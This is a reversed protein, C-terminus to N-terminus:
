FKWLCNRNNFALFEPLYLIGWAGQFWFIDWGWNLGLLQPRKTPMKTRRPLLCSELLSDPHITFGNSIIDQVKWTDTTEWLAWFTKCVWFKTRHSNNELINCKLLIHIELFVGLSNNCTFLSQLFGQKQGVALLVFRNVQHYQYDRSPYKLVWANM